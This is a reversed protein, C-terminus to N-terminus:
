FPSIVMSQCSNTWNRYKHSALDDIFGAFPDGRIDKQSHCAGYDNAAEEANESGLACRAEIEVVNDHGYDAGSHNQNKIV